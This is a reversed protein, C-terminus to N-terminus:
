KRDEHLLKNQNEEAMSNGGPVIYMRMIFFIMTQVLIITM